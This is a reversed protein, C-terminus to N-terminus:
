NRRIMNFFSAFARNATLIVGHKDVSVIADTSNAVIAALQEAAQKGRRLNRRTCPASKVAFPPSRSDAGARRGRRAALAFNLYVPM